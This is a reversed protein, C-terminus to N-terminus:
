AALRSVYRAQAAPTNVVGHAGDPQALAGDIHHGAARQAPAGATGQDFFFLRHLEIDGLRFDRQPLEPQQHQM